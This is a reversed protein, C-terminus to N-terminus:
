GLLAATWTTADNVKAGTPYSAQIRVWCGTATSPACAYDAPVPVDMTVLRGNYGGSSQVNNLQCLSPTTSLAARDDRTITCGSFTGQYEAPGLVRLTGALTSEGMDFLNIRLTRGAADPLVRAVYFQISAGNANAFVPLRGRAAVTVYSGDVAALGAYGFGARVSFHNAGETAVTPSYVTPSAATVNTRVQLLYRGTQVSGAPVSCVTAFRHFTEAFSLVGDGPDLVGSSAGMLQDYVATASTPNLSGMTVPACSATRVVPNDTDTWETTDPARVVFTTAFNAVPSSSAYAADGPCFPAAGATTAPVGFRNAADPFKAVLASWQAATLSAATPMVTKSSATRDCTSGTNVYVGDYVQLVLPQGAVTHHVDVAVVYGDTAYETSATGSCGFERPSSNCVKSGYREGQQKGTSPGTANLWLQTGPDTGEPDNGLKNQPSGMPLPAVYEAVAEQRVRTSRQGVLGLFFNPVSTAVTVRLRDPDPDQAVTVTSGGAGGHTVGNKAVEARATATATALDGPLFVAGAHAGADAARQLREAHLYWNTLDVAFGALVLLVLLFLSMWVLAIGREEAPAPGSM